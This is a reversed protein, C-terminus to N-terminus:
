PQEREACSVDGACEIKRRERRNTEENSEEETEPPAHLADIYSWLNQPYTVDDFTIWQQWRSDTVPIEQVCHGDASVFIVQGDGTYVGFETGSYVGVGVVDPMTKMDDQVTYCLTDTVNEFSKEAPCYNLYGLLLGANDATRRRSEEDMEGYGGPQFQWESEVANECWAALDAANKTGSDTFLYPDICANRIMKYTQMFTTYEIEKGYVSNINQLIATDDKIQFLDAYADWDSIEGTEFASAYLLQAKLIESRLGKQILTAAITEGDSNLNEIQQADLKEMLAAEDVTISSLDPPQVQGIMALFVFPLICMGLIGVVISALFILITDRTKKDSLLAALVRIVAASM